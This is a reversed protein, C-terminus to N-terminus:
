RLLEPYTDFVAAQYELDTGDNYANDGLMIWLDADDSSSYAKFADRVARANANATGSDGIVWIRADAATGSVPSTKFHFSSDGAIAGASNGVSYFYESSPALGTLRVGHETTSGGVSASQDLNGATAGYRVVSDTAVDTRWRVTVADDNASQLYPGRTVTQAQATISLLMVLLAIVTVSRHKEM